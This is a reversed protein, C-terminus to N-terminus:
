RQKRERGFVVLGLTSVFAVAAAVRWGLSYSGSIDVLYGFLPPMVTMSVHWVTSATGLTVGRLGAEAKEGIYTILVGHFSLTSIGLIIAILYVAVSPVGVGILSAGLMWFVTLFGTIALVVIRWGHFLFDSAAGWLVRAIISSVQAVALMGGAIIPSLELEGILFLMFYSLGIFQFGIAVAGWLITTVLGRNRLLTKLAVLNIKHATQVGRTADRYLLIFAISIALILLGTIAAAMRWGLELALTPLIVAVLAGSLPVGMQKISMALARIRAPFWEIIAITMAPGTPSAVISIIIALALVVSFSNALPFALTFVTLILMSITIMRKVGFTDTLWGALISTGISGFSFASTILGVQALSLGFEDQIFPYLVPFGHGGLARSVAVGTVLPLVIWMYRGKQITEQDVDQSTSDSM